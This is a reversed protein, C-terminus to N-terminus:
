KTFLSIFYDSFLLFPLAVILLALFLYNWNFKKKKIPEATIVNGDADAYDADQAYTWNGDLENQDIKYKDDNM